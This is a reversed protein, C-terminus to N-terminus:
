GVPIGAAGSAIMIFLLMVVIFMRFSLLRFFTEWDIGLDNFADPESQMGLGSPHVSSPLSSEGTGVQIPNPAM